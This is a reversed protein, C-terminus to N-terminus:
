SGFFCKVVKEYAYVVKSTEKPSMETLPKNIPSKTQLWNAFKSMDAITKGNVQKTFGMTHLMSLIYKHKSNKIDFAEWNKGDTKGEPKDSFYNGIASGTGSYAVPKKATTNSKTM